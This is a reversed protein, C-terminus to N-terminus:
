VVEALLPTIATSAPRVALSSPRLAAGGGQGGGIRRLVEEEEGGRFSSVGVAVDRIRGSLANAALARRTQRQRGCHLNTLM